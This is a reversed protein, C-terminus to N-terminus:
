RIITRWPHMPREVTPDFLGLMMEVEDYEEEDEKANWERDLEVFLQDFERFIDLSYELLPSLM